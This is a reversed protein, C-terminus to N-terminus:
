MLSRQAKKWARGYHEIAEPLHGNAVEEAAKQMQQEAEALIGPDGGAATAEDIATRALTEDAAALSALV